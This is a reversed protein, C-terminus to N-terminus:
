KITKKLRNSLKRMESIEKKAADILPQKVDEAMPTLLINLADQQRIEAAKDLGSILTQIEQVSLWATIPKDM